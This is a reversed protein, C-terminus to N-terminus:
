PIFDMCEIVDFLQAHDEWVDQCELREYPQGYYLKRIGANILRSICRHCPQHTVYATCEVTDFPCNLLCNEEAHIVYSYKTPREWKEDTEEIGAAFGNYGISCQRNDPTVIVAGVKTSKDKSLTAAQYAMGMWFNNWKDVDPM